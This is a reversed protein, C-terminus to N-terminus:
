SILCLFLLIQEGYHLILVPHFYCLPGYFVPEVTHGDVRSLTVHFTSSKIM